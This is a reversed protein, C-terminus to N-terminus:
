ALNIKVPESEFDGIELYKMRRVLSLRAIIGDPFMECRNNLNLVTDNFYHRALSIRQETEVLNKKLNMFQDNSNLQPYREMIAGVVPTVSVVQGAAADDVSRYGTQARLESIEKLVTQECNRMGSVVSLIRPILDYRRKLEVDVNSRAQLAHNRLEVISLHVTWAWVALVVGGAGLGTYALYERGLAQYAGFLIGGMFFLACLCGLGGRTNAVEDETSTSILFLPADKHWAIEAAVADERVRSKGIVYIDHHLPIATESYVRRGVSGHVPTSVGCQFYLPDGMTCSEFFVGKADIKAKEPDIRLLGCDDKIYFKQTQGGSAITDYGTDVVTRTVTKGESNTETVTRTRRWEEKVSWQFWVAPTNSFPCELPCESEATGKLEVLGIFVGTTKCTPVDKVLRRHRIFRFFGYLSFVMAVIYVITMLVTGVDMNEM